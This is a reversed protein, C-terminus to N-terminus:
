EGELADEAEDYMYRKMYEKATFIAKRLRKVEAELEAIRQEQYDWAEEAGQRIDYSLRGDPQIDEWSKYWEEFDMM